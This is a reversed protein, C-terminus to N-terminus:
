ANRRPVCGRLACDLSLTKKVIPSHDVPHWARRAPQSCYGLRVTLGLAKAAKGLLDLDLLFFPQVACVQDGADKIVFYRYDFEPHLTDEVLEYYRHDKRENAFAVQWRSCRELDDRAVVELYRAHQM